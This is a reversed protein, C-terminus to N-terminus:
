WHSRGPRFPLKLAEFSFAAAWLLLFVTCITMTAVQFVLRGTHALFTNSSLSESIPGPSLVLILQASVAQSITNSDLTVVVSPTCPPLGPWRLPWTDNSTPDVVTAKKKTCLSVSPLVGGASTGTNTVFSWWRGQLSSCHDHVAEVGAAHELPADSGGGGGLGEPSPVPQQM